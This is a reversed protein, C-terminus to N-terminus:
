DFWTSVMDVIDISYHPSFNTTYMFYTELYTILYMEGFPLVYYM